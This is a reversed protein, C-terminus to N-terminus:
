RLVNFVRKNGNDIKIEDKTDPPAIAADVDVNVGPAVRPIPFPPLKITVVLVTTLM